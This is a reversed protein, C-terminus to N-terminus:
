YKCELANQFSSKGLLCAVYHVNKGCICAVVISYVGESIIKLLKQQLCNSFLIFSNVFLSRTSLFFANSNNKEFFLTYEIRLFLISFDIFAFISDSDNFSPHMIVWNAFSYPTEFFVIYPQRLLYLSDTGDTHSYLGLTTDGPNLCAMFVALNAQSGSHPQVNVYDVGFITKARDIALQEIQDVYQCGGYYRKNPYGEAYKNTLCSGAAQLVQSSVYNESAILEIGNIQRKNEKEILSFIIDIAAHFRTTKSLNYIRFM